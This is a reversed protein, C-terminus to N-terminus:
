EKTTSHCVCRVADVGNCAELAQLLELCVSVCLSTPVHVRAKTDGNIIEVVVPTTGHHTTIIDKIEELATEAEAHRVCIVLSRVWQALADDSTAARRVTLSRRGYATRLVGDFFWVTDTTIADGVAEKVEQWMVCEYVGYYDEVRIVGYATGRKTRKWQVDMVIGGMLASTDTGLANEEDDESETLVQTARADDTILARWASGCVDLPHASVYVGLVDKECALREAVDWEDVSDFSRVHPTDVDDFSSFFSRQFTSTEDKSWAAAIDEAILCMRRRPMEFCDCAGSKVLAELVSRTCLHHGVRQVLNDMSTYAGSKEREEVIATAVRLGVNRLANLGYCLTERGTEEDVRVTFHVDSTQIDPPRITVDAARCARFIEAMRTTDGMRIAALSAYFQAPYQVKLYATWYALFAYATAHSKNFGYGAFREIYGFLEEAESEKLGKKVARQLFRGRERSMWEGKKKTMIQRFTDAEAMSYGCVDHVIQMVQEQYVLTGYTEKLIPELSPHLYTVKEKGQKRAIFAASSDMAGPRYLAILAIIDHFNSPRLSMVLRRMGSSKELQFIGLVEGTCIHAFTAADDLPIEALAPSSGRTERILQLTDDIITLTTLGLFDMKLYGLRGVAYMDYQTMLNGDAGRVLPMRTQLVEPSIVIGAAHTSLNRPLGEIMEALEVIIRALTTERYMEHLRVNEKKARTIVDFVPGSRATEGIIACLRDIMSTPANLVRGADRLAARYRLTSFTAIHAVHDAGYREQVYAIIEDRRRECFDIDIDPMKQRSPNLFREFLLGYELPDIETIGLLYCVFSGAASGRGPGVAIGKERAFRVFDAVILVYSVFGMRALVDIEYALRKEATTRFKKTLGAKKQADASEDWAPYRRRLGEECLREAYARVTMGEPPTFHPVHYEQGVPLEVGCQDAIVHTNEIAEPIDHFAAIMDDAPVVFHTDHAPKIDKPEDVHTGQAIHRLCELAVADRRTLYVCRHAAVLPVNQARALGILKPMVEKEEPYEHWCLEVYCRGPGATHTLWALAERAQADRGAALHTFVEGERGGTLVFWKGALASFWEKRVYPTGREDAMHARSILDCLRYYGEIDEALAVVNYTVTDRAEVALAPTLHELAIEAGILPKVGAHMCADFFSVAGHMTMHDTLAVAQVGDAAICRVLDDIRLASQLLSYASLTHLHVFRDHPM